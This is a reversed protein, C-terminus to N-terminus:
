DKETSSTLRRSRRRLFCQAPGKVKMAGSGSAAIWLVSGDSVLLAGGANLCVILTTAFQREPM